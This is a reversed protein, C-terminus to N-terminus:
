AEGDSLGRLRKLEIRTSSRMKRAPLVQDGIMRYITSRSVGLLRAAENISVYIPEINSM